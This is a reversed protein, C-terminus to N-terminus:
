SCLECYVGTKWYVCLALSYMSRYIFGTHTHTHTTRYTQTNPTNATAINAGLLSPQVSACQSTMMPTEVESTCVCVSARALAWVCVSGLWFSIASFEVREAGAAHQEWVECQARWCPAVCECVRLNYAKSLATPRMCVLMRVCLCMGRVLVGFVPCTICFVDVHTQLATHVPSPSTWITYKLISAVAFVPMIIYFWFGYEDKHASRVCESARLCAFWILACWIVRTRKLKPEFWRCSPAM